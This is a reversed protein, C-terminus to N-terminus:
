IQMSVNANEADILNILSQNIIDVDVQATSYLLPVSLFPESCTNREADTKVWCGVVDDVTTIKKSATPSNGNRTSAELNKVSNTSGSDTPSSITVFRCKNALQLMQLTIKWANGDDKTAFTLKWQSIFAMVGKNDPPMFRCWLFFNRADDLLLFNCEGLDFSLISLYASRTCREFRQWTNCYFFFLFIECEHLFKM